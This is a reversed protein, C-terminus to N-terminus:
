TTEPPRSQRHQALANQLSLAGRDLTTKIGEGVSALVNGALLTPIAVALGLATCILAEAIGASMLKPNGTGHETIVDFTAIMGTVTGLLGLLPSGATIVTLASAFRDIAPTERLIAADIVRDIEEERRHRAALVAQLLRPVPGGRGTVLREAQEVEGAAVLANVKEVLPMGGRRAFVLGLARIIVLSLSVMGLGFLIQGMTGSEELLAIFGGEEEAEEVKKEAEFLFVELRAPQSDSVFATATEKGFERRLQLRGEGAPALAGRGSAADGWAAIQGWGYVRGQTLTGDPLFFAEDRWGVARQAALREAAALFVLPLAAAPDTPPPLELTESAQGLTSTLLSQADDMATTQRDLASFDDEAQDARRTLSVLRGQLRDLEAEAGSVRQQAEAQQQQRRRLLEEKEAKLYAFEKQYAAELAGGEPNAWALTAILLAIM